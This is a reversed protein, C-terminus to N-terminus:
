FFFCHCTGFEKYKRNMFPLNQLRAAKFITLPTTKRAQVCNISVIYLMTQQNIEKQISYQM